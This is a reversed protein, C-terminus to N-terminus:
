QDVRRIIEDYAYEIPIRHKEALKKYNEFEPAITVVQNGIRGIKIKAKGYKTKIIKFSRSLTERNVLFVRVGFTTTKKFITEVIQNKLEVPCLVTLKVAKRKKKMIIPEIYADLAGAKMIGAITKDWLKPNMDDINTEIQLISDKITGLEKEGIIIRLFNPQIKLDYGGAGLGIKSVKLRPMSDVSKALTALIASGTPTALEKKIGSSYITFGQLLQATAPSPIPLIGHACKTKGEGVNIPSCFIEKIGLYELCIVTGVIDIIADMAGVEHFHIKNIDCKHIQAEAEALKSFIKISKSKINTSLLSKNIINKIDKLSRAKKEKKCLVEIYTAFVINNTKELKVIKYGSLKLKKIEKTLYSFPVGADVLVGLFMNGSIGSSCDLYATKM